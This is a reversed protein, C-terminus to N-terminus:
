SYLGRLREIEDKPVPIIEKIGLLDKPAYRCDWRNIVKKFAGEPTDSDVIVTEWERCKFRVEWQKM